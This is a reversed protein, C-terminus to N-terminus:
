RSPSSPTRWRSSGPRAHSGTSATATRGSTRSCNATSRPPPSGAASSPSPGPTACADRNPLFEASHVAPGGIGRLPAPVSPETGIGVVVHLARYTEPGQDTEAHVTFTDTVPDHEVATVRRGWRLTDLRDAAWRCYADYESRLPHFDERIYFPYLRGTEKLWALFSFPSTPDAMTVLDALFPVQITADDLMMGHHWAFGDAADLFVADVDAIPDTLCALGLNFPGIGIGVVDHVAPDAAARDSATRDATM